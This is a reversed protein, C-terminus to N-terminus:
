GATFLDVFTERGQPHDALRDKSKGSDFYAQYVLSGPGETPLSAFWAYMGEVFRPEDAGILGWEPFAVPKGHAIAFDLQSQMNAIFQTDWRYQNWSPDGEDIKWYVDMSVIDVYEDGPYADQAWDAWGGRTTNWDFRFDPSVSSLIEHVHRWAAIFADENQRSSYPPWAGDFEHGLRIVADGYGTDVLDQAAALYHANYAGAATRELNEAIQARGAASNANATGFGLPITISLSIDDALSPLTSDASTLLAAVNNRMAFPGGRETFQTTWRFTQGFEVQARTYDDLDFLGGSARFGFSEDFAAPRAPLVPVDRVVIPVTATRVGGADDTVTLSLEHDGEAYVHTVEEGVGTSGDGFDWDISVISGDLDTSGISSAHIVLPEPGTTIDLTLCPLPAINAGGMDRGPGAAMNRCVERQTFARDYIAVLHFDGFWQRLGDPDSGIAIPYTPDWPGLDGGVFAQDAVQGDLWITQLGDADRSFVVHVLDEGLSGEPSEAAPYGQETSNASVIRAELQDTGVGISGQSISANRIADSPSITVIRGPEDPVTVAPDIWAEMTIESSAIVADNVKSAPGASVLLNPQDLRIGGGPLWTIADPDDIVLDLPEGVGSVDPVVGGAASFDYLARLGNTERGPAPTSDAAWAVSADFIEWGADNLRIPGRLGMFLAIRRAPAAGSSMQAGADYAFMTAKSDTNTLTALVAVDGDPRGWSLSDSTTYVKRRGPDGEITPHSPDEIDIMSQSATGSRWGASTFGLEDYVLPEWVIIPVEVDAIARDLAGGAITASILVLDFGATDEASTDNDDQAVVEYGLQTLRDVVPQDQNTVNDRGMILLARQVTSTDRVTFTVEASSEEVGDSAALSLTFTGTEWFAATTSLASPDGLTVGDPVTWETTVAGPDTPLGDDTVAAVLEITGGLPVEADADTNISVNPPRNVLGDVDTAWEVSNRFLEAGADNWYRPTAFSPFFAVRRSPAIGTAMTDGTDYAFVVARQTNNLARAVVAADPAPVGYSFSTSRTAVDIAGALDGAIPHADQMVVRRQGSIQGRAGGQAKVLGLDDYLWPEWTLVPIAAQAFLSGVKAPSVSTSIVVLRAAAADDLDVVDDDVLTVEFGLEILEDRPAQDGVPWLDARGAVYLVEPSPSETAGAHSPVVGAATAMALAVGIVPWTRTRARWDVTGM